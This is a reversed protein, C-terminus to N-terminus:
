GIPCVFIFKIYEGITCWRSSDSSAISCLTNLTDVCSRSPYFHPLSVIRVRDRAPNDFVTTTNRVGEAVNSALDFVGVVPKTVARCLVGDARVDEICVNHRAVSLDYGVLGKGVGKFFGVAGESEAGEIPKM